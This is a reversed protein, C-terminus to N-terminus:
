GLSLWALVKTISAGDGRKVKLQPPGRHLERLDLKVEVRAEGLPQPVHIIDLFLEPLLPHGLHELDL